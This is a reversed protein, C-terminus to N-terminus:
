RSGAWNFGLTAFFTGTKFSAKDNEFPEMKVLGADYGINAYLRGFNFGCGLRLGIDTLTDNVKGGHDDAYDLMESDPIALSVFGGIFPQVFMNPGVNIHYSFVLPIEIEHLFNNDFKRTYFRWDDDWDFGKNVYYFGSEFFLPIPALQIDYALGFGVFPLAKSEFGGMNDWSMSNSTYAARLGMHFRDPERNNEKKSFQANASLTASFLMAAAIMLKFSKKM